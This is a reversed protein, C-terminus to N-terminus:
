LLLLFFCLLAGTDCLLSCMQMRLAQQLVSQCQQPTAGVIQQVEARNTIM